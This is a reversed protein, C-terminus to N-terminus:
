VEAPIPHQIRRLAVARGFVDLYPSNREALEIVEDLVSKPAESEITVAYRVESYGAPIDPGMGLEGRADFDAEVDVELSRIPAALRAAWIAIGMTLCSALAARGLVGPTPATDEGGLKGPLDAVLKWPGEEVECRLGDVLRARTACTLYGRSPKATLLQINRDTIARITAQDAM